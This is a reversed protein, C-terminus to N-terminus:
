FKQKYMQKRFSVPFKTNLKERVQIIVTIEELQKKLQQEDVQLSTQVCENVCVFLCHIVTLQCWVKIIAECWDKSRERFDGSCSM